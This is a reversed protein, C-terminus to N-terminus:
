QAHHTTPATAKKPPIKASLKGAQTKSLPANAKEDAKKKAAKAILTPSESILSAIDVAVPKAARAEINAKAQEIFSADAALLEKAAATIQSAEVMSVRMKLVNRITDKVKAKALRLAETMVVGSVKKGNADVTGATTRKVYSGDKIKALKTEALAMADTQAKALEDDVLDKTKIKANGANLLVKLGETYILAIMNDGVDGVPIDTDTNFLIYKGKGAKTIPIRLEAM